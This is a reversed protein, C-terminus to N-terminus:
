SIDGSHLSLQGCACVKSPNSSLGWSGLKRLPRSWLANWWGRESRASGRPWLPFRSTSGQRDEGSGRKTKQADGGVYIVQEWATRIGPIWFQSLSSM